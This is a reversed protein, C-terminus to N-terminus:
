VKPNQLNLTKTWAEPSSGSFQRMKELYTEMLGQMSNFRIIQSLMQTSFVPIGGAEEELLIQLLINRTLDDETKADVVSFVEGTM